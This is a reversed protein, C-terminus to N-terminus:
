SFFLPLLMKAFIDLRLEYAEMLYWRKVYHIPALYFVFTEKVRKEKIKFLRKEKPIEM